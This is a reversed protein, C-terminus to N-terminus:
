DMAAMRRLEELMAQEKAGRPVVMVVAKLAVTSVKAMKSKKVSAVEAVSLGKKRHEFRSWM